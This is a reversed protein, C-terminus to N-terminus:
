FQLSLSLPHITHTQTVSFCLYVGSLFLSLSLTATEVAVEVEVDPQRGVHNNKRSLFNTWKGIKEPFPFPFIGLFDVLKLYGENAQM